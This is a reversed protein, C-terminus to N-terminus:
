IDFATDNAQFIVEDIGYVPQTLLTERIAEFLSYQNASSLSQFVDGGWPHNVQFNIEAERADTDVNVEYGTIGVDQGEYQDVIQNVAMTVPADTTVLVSQPVLEQTNRDPLYITVPEYERTISTDIETPTAADTRQAIAGAGMSAVGETAIAASVKSTGEAFPTQKLHPATPSAVASMGGLASMGAAVAITMVLSRWGTARHGSQSRPRAVAIPTGREADSWEDLTHHLYNQYTKPYTMTMMWGKRVDLKYLHISVEVRIARMGWVANGFMCSKSPLM